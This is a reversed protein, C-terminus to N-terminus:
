EQEHSRRIVRPHFEAVPRLRQVPMAAEHQKSGEGPSEGKGEKPSEVVAPTAVAPAETRIVVRTAPPQMWRWAGLGLALTLCAAVPLPVRVSVTWMRRWWPRRAGFLSERLRAPPRPAQWEGLARDLEEDSLQDPKQPDM